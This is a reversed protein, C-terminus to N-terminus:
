WYFNKERHMKIVNTVSSSDKHDSYHWFFGVAWTAQKNKSLLCQWKLGQKGLPSAPILTTLHNYLQLLEFSSSFFGRELLWRSCVQSSSVMTLYVGDIPNQELAKAKSILKIIRFNRPAITNINEKSIQSFFPSVQETLHHSKCKLVHYQLPPIVLHRHLAPATLAGGGM